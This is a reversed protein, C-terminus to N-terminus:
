SFHSGCFSNGDSDKWNDELSYGKKVLYDYHNIGNRKRKVMGLFEDIEVQNRHEDVIVVNRNNLIEVWDELSVIPNAIGYDALDDLDKYGRFLFARGMASLGLHLDEITQVKNSIVKENETITTAVQISKFRVYHNCTM